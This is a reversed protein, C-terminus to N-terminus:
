TTFNSKAGWKQHLVMPDKVFPLKVYTRGLDGSKEPYEIRISSDVIYQEDEERCSRARTKGGGTCQQCDQCSPCRYDVVQGVEECDEWERVLSKLKRIKFAETSQGVTCCTACGCENRNINMKTTTDTSIGTTLRPEFLGSDTFRDILRESEFTDCNASMICSTIPEAVIGIEKTDDSNYEVEETFEEIKINNRTMLVQQRVKEGDISIVDCVVSNRFANAIESFFLNQVHFISMRGVDSDEVQSMAYRYAQTFLRHNGAYVIKSGYKDRIKAEGVLLGGPCHHIIRPYWSPTNIGVLLGVSQGGCSMPYQQKKLKDGHCGDFGKVEENIEALNVLPLKNTIDEIGNAIIEFYEGSDSPGLIVRFRGLGTCTVHNGAGIIQQPRKDYCKAGTADIVERTVLAGNAGSDNFCLVSKGGMSLDQTWYIALESSESVIHREVDVRDIVEGTRTNFVPETKWSVKKSDGFKNVDCSTNVEHVSDKHIFPMRMVMVLSGSDVSKMKSCLEKLAEDHKVKHVVCLLVHTGVPINTDKNCQPCPIQNKPYKCSNLIEKYTEPNTRDADKSKRKEVIRRCKDAYCVQHLCFFCIKRAIASNKRSENGAQLGKPCTAIEHAPQDRPCVCCRCFFRGDYDKTARGSDSIGNVDGDASHDAASTFAESFLRYALNKSGSLLRRLINGEMKPNLQGAILRARVSKSLKFPKGKDGPQLVKVDSKTDKVEKKQQVRPNADMYEGM